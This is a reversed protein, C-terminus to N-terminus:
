KVKAKLLSTVQGPIYLSLPERLMIGEGEAAVISHLCDLLHERGKCKINEVLHIHSAAVSKILSEMEKMRDEYTGTSSPIDFIYYGLKSWDGNKSNMVGTVNANTTGTGMWLEGDLTRDKPLTSTFWEPCSIVNGHRSIMREGDWYGRVGDM